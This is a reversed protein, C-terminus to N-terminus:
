RGGEEETAAEGKDESEDDSGEDSAAKAKPPPPAENLKKPLKKLYSSDPFENRMAECAETAKEVMLAKNASLCIYAQVKDRQSYSPYDELLQELREIASGLITSRARAFRYYFVAVVFEHEALNELVAKMEEQAESAYPSTPYLRQLDRFESLAKRTTQQDRNPKEMRKALSSAVRFQAYDAKDSTPFRNLFDRYRTEAEVYSDFGGVLYLADSALLLGDRGAPSNPEVEFSHVLYKRALRYKKEEMLRKGEELAEIASLKLIPDNQVGGGCAALLAALAFTFRPFWHKM